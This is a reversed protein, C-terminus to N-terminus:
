TSTLASLLSNTSDPVTVRVSPLYDAAAIKVVAGRPLDLSFLGNGDTTATVTARGVYQSALLQPIAVLEATVSVGSAAVGAPTEFYGYVACRSPSTGSPLSTANAAMTLTGTGAPAITVSGTAWVLGSYHVGVTLDGNGPYLVVLGSSNTTGSAVLVTSANRVAVLAGEVPVAASTTVTVTLQETGLGSGSSADSLAEATSGVTGSHDALQEEWVADAVAAATPATASSLALGTSGASLHGAIAEDWVGDAIEAVADAALADADIAGTAVAAATVVGSAMAGVSADIRGSVLAAPLRTQIDATDTEVDTATKITTGSLNLTTTPSGVNAWDVGAEGGASVDLARGQVTPSLWGSDNIRGTNTGSDSVQGSANNDYVNNHLCTDSVSAGVNVGYGTSAHFLNRCIMNDANGGTGTKTLRVADGQVDLFLNDCVTNYQSTGNNSAIILGHGTAAVGTGQFTCNLVRLNTCNIAEVGTGQTANIFVDHIFIFDAGTAEVGDANAGSAGAELQFGSLEVGASTITFTPTNVSSAKVKFDRGPGRIFVFRDGTISIDETLTTVASGSDPVLIIVAHLGTAIVSLAKTVTAYPLSRSGNGTTDNGTNPAVYLTRTGAGGIATHRGRQSEVVDRVEAASIDVTQKDLDSTVTASAETENDTMRCTLVDGALLAGTQASTFTFQWVGASKYSATPVNAGTPKSSVWSGSSALSWWFGDSRRTIYAYITGSSKDLGTAITVVHCELTCPIFPFIM